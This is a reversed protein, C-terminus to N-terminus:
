NTQKRYGLLGLVSALALVVLGWVSQIGKESGTQPLTAAPFATAENVSIGQKKFENGTKSEQTKSNEEAQKQLNEEVERAIKQSNVAKNYSTLAAQQKAQAQVLAVQAVELAQATQAAKEKASDLAAKAQDLNKQTAAVDAQAAVVKAQLTDLDAQAKAGKNVLANLEALEQQTAAIQSDLADVAKQAATVKAQAAALEQKAKDAAAQKAQLDKLAGAKTTNAVQLEQKFAATNQAANAIKDNINVLKQKAKALNAQLTAVDPIIGDNAKALKAKAATLNAVAKDNEAKATNYATQKKAVEVKAATTDVNTKSLDINQASDFKDNKNGMYHTFVGEKWETYGPFVFHWDLDNNYVNGFGPYSDVRGDIVSPAVAVYEHHANLFNLAHGYRSEADDFFLGLISSYVDAKLDAMTLISRYTSNIGSYSVDKAPKVQMAPINTRTTDYIYSAAINESRGDLLASDHGSGNLISEKKTQYGDAISKTIKLGETNLILDKLGFYERVQNILSVAYKNLEILQENTLHQYDVKENADAQSYNFKENLGIGSKSIAEFAATPNESAAKLAEITYGKPIQIKNLVETKTNELAELAAQAKALEAQSKDLNSKAQNATATADNVKKTAAEVAKAKNGSAQNANDLEEQIENVKEEAKIKDKTLSDVNNADLKAQIDNVQKEANNYANQAQALGSQSKNNQAKQKAQNTKAESLNNATQTQQQKLENLQNNKDIIVKKTTESNAAAVAAQADKVQNEALTQKNKAQDLGAQAASVAQNKATVDSQAAQNAQNAVDVKGQSEKVENNAAALNQKANDLNAQDTKVPTKGQTPVVSDAQATSDIVASVGVASVITTAIAAKTVLNKM